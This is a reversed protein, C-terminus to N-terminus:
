KTEKNSYSIYNWHNQHVSSKLSIWSLTTKNILMLVNYGNSVSELKDYNVAM